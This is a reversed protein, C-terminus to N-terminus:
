TEGDFGVDGTDFWPVRPDNATRWAQGNIGERNPVSFGFFNV